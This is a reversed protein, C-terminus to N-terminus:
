LVYSYGSNYTAVKLPQRTLSNQEGNCVTIPLIISVLREQPCLLIMEGLINPSPLSPYLTTEVALLGVERLV